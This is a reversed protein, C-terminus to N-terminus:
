PGQHHLPHWNSVLLYNKFVRLVSISNFTVFLIQYTKAIFAPIEPENAIGKKLVSM